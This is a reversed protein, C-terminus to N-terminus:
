SELGPARAASAGFRVEGPVKITLIFRTWYDGTHRWGIKEVSRISAANWPYIVGWLREDGSLRLAYAHLMHALLAHSRYEPDVYGRCAFHEDEPVRVVRHLETIYVDGATMWTSAIIRGADRVVICTTRQRRFRELDSRDVYPTTGLVAEFDGTGLFEVPLRTETRPAASAGAQTEYRRMHINRYVAKRFVLRGAERLSLRSM